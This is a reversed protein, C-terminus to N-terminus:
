LASTCACFESSAGKISESPCRLISVTFAFGGLVPYCFKHEFKEDGAIDCESLSAIHIEVLEDPQDREFTPHWSGTGTALDDALPQMFM